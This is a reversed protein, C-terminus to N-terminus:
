EMEVVCHQVEPSYESERVAAVEEPAGSFQARKEHIVRWGVEAVLGRVCHVRVLGCHGASAVWACSDLNPSFRVKHVAELQAREMNMDGKIENEHMRKVPERSTLRQFGRLDMDRFLLSFRGEAARYSKPKFHEWEGSQELPGPPREGDSLQPAHPQFDAKYVPFRRDGPRKTNISSVNLNPLVIVIVEGNVDGAAISSLWDSGSISWVTGKRPTVFYPKYGLFGSDVYHIGCLGHSAYCNDQAVAVGSYPLLWTIETTQFRKMNNTPEHLRRLDWFKLRRDSGATVLFNSDAKCWEISRVAHDHALFSLFPYQKIVRGQRVRQLVSRTKLDWISVTGDYFGAALYHHPKAPLWAVSFSQGNEGQACSKISGVQLRVVGDVKCVTYDAADGGKVQTERHGALAEPHPLSYIEIFGSSFAAALLGLRAMQPSKRPTAPLEWAGSPCFKMDWICGHDLALGYSFAAGAGSGKEMDLAGLSWLQLLVPGSKVVDLRNRDDMGRHSYLALYQCSGSGGVTPCWEMSWVPGGVFFTMDWREPHPPLSRFRGLSCAAGEEKIGERRVSFPPSTTLAPLFEEAESATLFHWDAASPIWEPFEWHSHSADRFEATIETAKWVPGMIPRQFGNEATGRLVPSSRERPIYACKKRGASLETDSAESLQETEDEEHEAAVLLDESVVFDEDADDAKKRRRKKVPEEPINHEAGAPKNASSAVAASWEEEMDHLYKLATVAARRRPRGSPTAAPEESEGAHERQIGPSEPEQALRLLLLEAKSKRGRKKPVKATPTLLGAAPPDSEPAAPLGPSPPGPVSVPLAPSAPLNNNKHKPPRGRRRKPTPTQLADPPMEKDFADKCNLESSYGRQESATVPTDPECPEKTVPAVGAPCPGRAEAPSSPHLLESHDTGLVMTDGATHESPDMLM